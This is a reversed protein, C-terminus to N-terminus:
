RKPAHQNTLPGRFFKPTLRAPRLRYGKGFSKRINHFFRTSNLLSSIANELTDAANLTASCHRACTGTHDDDLRATIGCPRKLLAGQLTFTYHMLVDLQM